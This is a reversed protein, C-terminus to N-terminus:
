DEVNISDVKAIITADVNKSKTRDTYKSTSGTVILGMEGEGIGVTDVAIYYDEKGEQDIDIMQVLLLKFGKLSEDKITSTISGIVKVLKM